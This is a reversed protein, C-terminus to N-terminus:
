LPAMLMAKVSRDTRRTLSVSSHFKFQCRSHTGCIFVREWNTSALPLTQNGYHTCNTLGAGIKRGTGASKRVEARAQSKTVILIHAIDSVDEFSDLVAIGLGNFFQERQNIVLQSLQGPV